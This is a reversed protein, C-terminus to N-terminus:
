TVAMKLGSAVRRRRKGIKSLGRYQSRLAKRKARYESGSPWTLWWLVLGAGGVLAWAPLTAFGLDVPTTLSAMIADTTADGMGRCSACAGGCACGLGAPQLQIIM